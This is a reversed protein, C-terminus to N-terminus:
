GLAFADQQQGNLVGGDTVYGAVVLMAGYGPRLPRITNDTRLVRTRAVPLGALLEKLSQLSVKVAPFWVGSVDYGTSGEMFAMIFPAGPMLAGIFSRVASDFETEDDSLGDAVFYMSGLDWRRPPLDFISTRLIDHREALQTRPHAINNYGPLDTVLEWFPQWMWEDTSDALHERLWEISSEAYETFTIREAWPLMLLSPYLNPGAGVDVAARAVPRTAFAEILFQSAFRIIEADEPMIVAYNAKSYGDADFDSWPTADNRMGAEGEPM